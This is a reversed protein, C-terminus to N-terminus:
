MSSKVPKEESWPVVKSKLHTHGSNSPLSRKRAVAVSTGNARPTIAALSKQLDTHHITVKIDGMPTIQVTLGEIITSLSSM